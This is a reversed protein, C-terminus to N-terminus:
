RIKIFNLSHTHTIIPENLQIKNRTGHQCIKSNELRINAKATVMIPM